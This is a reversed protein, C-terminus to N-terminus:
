VFVSRVKSYKHKGRSFESTALVCVRISTFVDYFGSLHCKIFEFARHPQKHRTHPPREIFRRHAGQDGLKAGRERRTKHDECDTGRHIASEGFLRRGRSEVDQRELHDAIV